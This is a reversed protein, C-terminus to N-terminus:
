KLQKNNSLFPRILNAGANELNSIEYFQKSLLVIITQLKSSQKSDRKLHDTFSQHLSFITKWILELTELTRPTTELWITKYPAM